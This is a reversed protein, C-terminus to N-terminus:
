KNTSSPGGGTSNATHPNPSTIPRTEPWDKPVPIPNQKVNNQADRNNM